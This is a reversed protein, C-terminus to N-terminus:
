ESVQDQLRRDEKLPATSTLKTTNKIWLDRISTFHSSSQSQLSNAFAFPTVNTTVAPVSDIDYRRKVAALRTSM